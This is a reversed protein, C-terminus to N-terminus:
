YNFFLCFNARTATHIAARTAVLSRILACDGCAVSRGGPVGGIPLNAQASRVLRGNSMSALLYSGDGPRYSVSSHAHPSKQKAKQKLIFGLLAASRPTAFLLFIGVVYLVARRDRRAPHRQAGCEKKKFPNRQFSLLFSLSGCYWEAGCWWRVFPALSGPVPLQPPHSPPRLGAHGVYWRKLPM